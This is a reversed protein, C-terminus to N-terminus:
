LIQLNLIEDDLIDHKKLEIANSIIDIDELQDSSLAKAIQKTIDHKMPLWERRNLQVNDKEKKM